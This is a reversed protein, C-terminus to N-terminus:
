FRGADPGVLLLGAPRRGELQLELQMKAGDEHSPLSLVVTGLRPLSTPAPSGYRSQGVLCLLLRPQWTSLVDFAILLCM